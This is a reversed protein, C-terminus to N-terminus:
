VAQFVFSDAYLHDMSAGHAAFATKADHIMNPSGCLYIAHESLEPHDALVADQVHGRRGKWDDAARSL